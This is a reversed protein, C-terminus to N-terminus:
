IYCTDSAVSQFKTIHTTTSIITASVTTLQPFSRRQRRDMDMPIIANGKLLIHLGRIKLIHFYTPCWTKQSFTYHTYQIIVIVSIPKIEFVIYFSYKNVSNQFIEVLSYLKWIIKSVIILELFCLKSDHRM